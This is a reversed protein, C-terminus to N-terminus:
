LVKQIEREIAEVGRLNVAAINGDRDILFTRPISSVGYQRAPACEWKKLDSVHYEWPLGDKEIAQVWRQKSSEMQQDIQEQSNFNSKTRTDLGDLSVSFVTFGQDKYKNYVQVVNPNERRCPGCWSAWFDLLVVKGKLDALAYTKGDPSPLSINPAEMGVRIPQGAQAQAYAAEAQDIFETYIVVYESEPYTARMRELAKKHVNLYAGNNGLARYATAMAVMPNETEEVFGMLKDAGMTRNVLSRMVDLYTSWSKSGTSEFGFTPLNQLDGNVTIAKETGDLVMNVKKAGIRLRYIGPELGEPFSLSFAGTADADARLIAESARNLKFKDLNVQLNAAGNLTGSIELTKSQASTAGCQALLIAGFAILIFPFLKKM